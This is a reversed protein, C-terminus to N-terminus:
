STAADKELRDALSEFRAALQELAEAMAPDAAPAPARGARIEVLEDAMLLSAFLLHRAEGMNGVAAAAEKAKADVTRALTKLHEEEGDRCAVPYSRDGVMLDVTAM